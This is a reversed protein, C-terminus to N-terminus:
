RDARVYVLVPREVALKAAAFKKEASKLESTACTLNSEQGMRVFAKVRDLSDFEGTPHELVALSDGVYAVQYRKNETVQGGEREAIYV